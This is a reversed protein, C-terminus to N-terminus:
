LGVTGLLMTKFLSSGEVIRKLSILAPSSEPLDVIPRGELDLQQILPDEPVIGICELGADEIAKRIRQASTPPVRNAIVGYSGVRTEIEKILDVIRRATTIGRTTPDTTILLVDIDRTTRRSFHELGAEADIVVISYHSTLSDIIKRLLNNLYCYCGPGEPRGMTLLDFSESESLSSQIMYNLYDEKTQEPSLSDRHALLRERIDGVTNKVEVGLAENLNSNPDADVVLIPSKAKEQLIRVLLATITTKGTGGKGSVAISITL